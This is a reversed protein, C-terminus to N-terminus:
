QNSSALFGQFKLDLQIQDHFMSCPVSLDLDYSDASYPLWSGRNQMLSIVYLLVDYIFIRDCKFQIQLKSRRKQAPNIIRKGRRTWQTSIKALASCSYMVCCAWTLCQVLNNCCNLIRCHLTITCAFLADKHCQSFWLYELWTLSPPGQGALLIRSPVLTSLTASSPGSRQWTSKSQPGYLSYSPCHVLDM